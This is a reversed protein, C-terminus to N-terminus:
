LEGPATMVLVWVVAFAGLVVTTITRWRPSSARGSPFVVLLLFVGAM